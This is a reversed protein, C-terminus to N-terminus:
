LSSLPNRDGETPQNDWWGLVVEWGRGPTFTGWHLQVYEPVGGPFATDAAARSWFHHPGSLVVHSGDQEGGYGNQGIIPLGNDPTQKYIIESLKKM